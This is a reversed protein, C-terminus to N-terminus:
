GVKRVNGQLGIRYETEVGNQEIVVRYGPTIVAACIEGPEAAGLCADPFLTSEAELVTAGSGAEDLAQVVAAPQWVRWGDTASSVREWPEVEDTRARAFVLKEGGSEAEGVSELREASLASAPLTRDAIFLAGDLTATEGAGATTVATPLSPRDGADSSSEDSSSGCATFVALAAV